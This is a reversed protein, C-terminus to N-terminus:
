KQVGLSAATQRTSFSRTYGKAPIAITYREGDPAVTMKICNGECAEDLNAILEDATNADEEGPRVNKHM